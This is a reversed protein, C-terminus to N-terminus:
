KLEFIFLISNPIMSVSAHDVCLSLQFISMCLHDVSDLVECQPNPHTTAELSMLVAVRYHHIQIGLILLASFLDLMGDLHQRHTNTM